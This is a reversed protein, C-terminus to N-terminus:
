GFICLVTVPFSLYHSYFPFLTWGFYIESQYCNVVKQRDEPTTNPSDYLVRCVDDVWSEWSSVCRSCLLCCIWFPKIFISCNNLLCVVYPLLHKDKHSKSFNNQQLRLLVQPKEVRKSFQKSGNCFQTYAVKAVTERETLESKKKSEPSKHRVKYVNLAFSSLIFYNECAYM